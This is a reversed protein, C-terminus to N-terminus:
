YIRKKKLWEKLKKLSNLNYKLYVFIFGFSLALNDLNISDFNDELFKVFISIYSDNIKINIKSPMNNILFTKGVSKDGLVRIIIPNGISNIPKYKIEKKLIIDILYNFIETININKKASCEYVKLNYKNSLDLEEKLSVERKEEEDCKNGILIIPIKDKLLKKLKKLRTECNQFSKKDIISYVLFIGDTKKILENNGIINIFIVELNDRIKITPEKIEIFDNFTRIKEKESNQNCIVDIISSKGTNIDGILGIKIKRNEM